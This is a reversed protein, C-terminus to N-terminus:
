SWSTDSWKRLLPVRLLDAMRGVRKSPDTKAAEKARLWSEPERLKLRIWITLLAPLVGIVFAIRWNLDPIAETKLAPNGVIFAGAAIALYSGFTSTAHFIGLSRVRAFNPFVEAVMASAVAWEGGVGMAVFFRLLIVQWPAQAFATLCTFLSYMLITIVMTRARGIRDSVMGFGIGGLAGGLLFAGLAFKSIADREAEPTGEPLLSAMMENMSTVFIQGEFIDFIWGLSAILLVLWQYRTVGHWWPADEPRKSESM